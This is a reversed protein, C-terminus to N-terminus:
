AFFEQPALAARRAHSVFMACDWWYSAMPAKHRLFDREARERCLDALEDLLAGLVQRAKFSLEVLRAAPTLGLLPNLRARRECRAPTGAASRRLAAPTQVDAAAAQRIARSIHGCYVAAAKWYAARQTRRERWAPEVRAACETKLAGLFGSLAARDETGLAALLGSATLALIPNRM